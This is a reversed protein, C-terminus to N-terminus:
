KVDDWDDSRYPFAPLHYTDKLNADPDFNKFAYRVAVPSAVEACTLEVRPGRIVADAKYFKKDAGAVAFGGAKGYDVFLGNKVDFLVTAKNGSFKVSLVQAGTMPMDKNVGVNYCGRLAIAAFRFGLIHKDKPHICYRNGIDTTPVLGSNPIEKLSKVQQEVFLPLYTDDKDTYAYPALQAYYFPMNEDGWLERWLAVMAKIERGYLEPTHINKEGQYWLFGKATYNVVPLVMSNFIAYKKHQPSKKDNDFTDIDLGEIGKLTKEDMWSEITSGGWSNSIIGVPVGLIDTLNRAFFYPTASLNVINSANCTVWRGNPLEDQASDCGVRDMDLFRIKDKYKEATMIAEYSNEVPQGGYGKLLMQMNSQGSCIWVEGLLVDDLEVSSDADKITITYTGGAKDTAVKTLWKGNANVNVTYTQNNWSTTISVTSNPKAWGWLNVDTQQQLVMGSAIASPLSVEAMIQSVAFILTFILCIGKKM